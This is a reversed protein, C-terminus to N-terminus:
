GNVEKGKNETEINVSNKEIMEEAERRAIVIDREASPVDSLIVRTGEIKHVYVKVETGPLITNERMAERTEDRVLTKHLMGTIFEDLEVFVGFPTTGTVHGTFVTDKDKELIEHLANIKTPLMRRLYKKRSVVFGYNPDWSEVMVEFKTGVMSEFDTVRNAAAMSGPMFAKITNMIDVVFGGKNTSLITAYYAKSNLTIQQKLERTLSEVYGDWISAKEVDGPTIKALLNMGLLENKFTPYKISEVFIEKTMQGEDTSFQNLFKQEKNLDVIVNNSGGNITLIITDKDIADINSISVLNNKVLEKSAEVKVGSYMNYVDQAYTEHCFVKDFKNTLKIRKNSRLSKGNWGDEYPTWDFDEPKQQKIVQYNKNKLRLNTSVIANKVVIKREEKEQKLANTEKTKKAWEPHKNVSARSNIEHKM